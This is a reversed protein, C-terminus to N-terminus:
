DSLTALYKQPTLWAPPDWPEDQAETVERKFAAVQGVSLLQVGTNPLIPSPSPILQVNKQLQILVIDRIVVMVQPDKHSLSLLISKLKPSPVPIEWRINRNDETLMVLLILIVYLQGLLLSLTLGEQGWVHFWWKKDLCVALGQRSSVWKARVGLDLPKPPLFLTIGNYHQLFQDWMILDLRAGSSLRLHFYPIRKKMGWMLHYLRRLFARGPVIVKCAFNLLGTLAELQRVQIKGEKTYKHVLNRCKELKDQPLRARMLRTDLELGMFTLCWGYETKEMAIPIGIKRCIELFARLKQKASPIHKSILLFDDLIHCLPGLGKVELIHQLATSLAEFIACGSRCGMPLTCVFLYDGFWKMRLAPIDEQRIPIIKYAHQIDSKVLISNPGVEQIMAIANDITHYSM